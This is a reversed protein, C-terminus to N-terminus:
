RLRVLGQLGLLLALFPAAMVTMVKTVIGGSRWFYRLLSRLKHGSVRLSSVDSTGGYHVAEAQPHFLVTGGAEWLRDCLDIDEVHLFYGEDFGGVEEFSSRDIMFFAGSITRMPGTKAPFPAKSQDYDTDRVPGSRPLLSHFASLLTLRGRRGGRQEGGDESRIHGGVLSPVSPQTQLATRLLAASGQGIVADPNVFLLYNGASLAAGYNCAKAFGINGQGQVLHLRDDAALADRLGMLAARDEPQNGNDVLYIDNVAPDALLAHLSKLLTPGTRYSVMIASITQNEEVPGTM